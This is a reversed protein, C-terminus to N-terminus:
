SVKKEKLSCKLDVLCMSVKRDNMTNILFQKDEADVLKDLVDQSWFRMTKTLKDKFRIVKQTNKDTNRHARDTKLLSKLKDFLTKIEEVM